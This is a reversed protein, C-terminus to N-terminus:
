PVGRKIKYWVLAAASLEDVTPSAFGALLQLDAVHRAHAGFGSRIPHRLELALEPADTGLQNAWARLYRLEYLTARLHANRWNTNWQQRDFPNTAGSAFEQLEATEHVAYLWAYWEGDAIAEWVDDMRGTLLRPNLTERYAAILRTETENMPPFATVPSRGLVVLAAQIEPEPPTFTTWALLTLAAEDPIYYGM